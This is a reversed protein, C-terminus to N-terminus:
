DSGRFIHLDYWGDRWGVCGKERTARVGDM